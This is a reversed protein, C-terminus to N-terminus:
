QIVEDKTYKSWIEPVTQKIISIIYESILKHGDLSPHGPHRDNPGDIHENLFDMWPNIYLTIENFKSKFFNFYNIYNLVAYDNPDKVLSKMWNNDNTDFITSHIKTIETDWANFFIIPCQFYNKGLEHMQWILNYYQYIYELEDFVHKRYWNLITEDKNGFRDNIVTPGINWVSGLQSPLHWRQFTTLGILILDPKLGQQYASYLNALMRSNSGCGASQNVVTGKINEQLLTPWSYDIEGNSKQSWSDGNVYIM